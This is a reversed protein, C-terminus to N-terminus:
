KANARLAAELAAYTKTDRLITERVVQPSGILPVMGATALKDRMEPADLNRAIAAHLRAVIEPPTGAPAFIALWIDLDYGRVGVEALTPVDPLLPERAISTVALARLKGAKIHPSAALVSLIAVQVDGALLATAVAPVGIYPIHHLDAGSLRKFRETGFMFSSSASGYNLEGPHAKGYAVLEPVSHVPVTPIVVLVLPYRAVMSIPAFDRAPDFPPKDQVVPVIAMQGNTAALLTHGDPAAAAVHRAAIMGDAGAKIEIVVPQGLEERLREALMRAGIDIGSGATSGVVIRIPRTPYGQSWASASPLAFLLMAALLLTKRVFQSGVLRM